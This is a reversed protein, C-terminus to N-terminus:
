RERAALTRRAIWAAAALLIAARAALSAPGALRSAACLLALSAAVYVALVECAGRVDFRVSSSRQSIRAVLATYALEAVLYGLAAGAIGFRPILLLGVAANLAIGLGSAWSIAATRESVVLGLNTLAASHHLVLAGVLWPLALLGARYAEPVLWAYLEPAAACLALGLVAFAGAFYRLMRRYLADRRPDQILLMAYPTWAQRFVLLAFSILSAIRATAGYLGVGELGLLVLLLLRDVQANVWAALTGPLLPLGFGLARRLPAASVPWALLRRVLALGLAFSAAAALGQAVFVGRIGSGLGYVFLIALAVSVGTAVLQVANYALIRRQMRLASSPITALAGFLAIGAGLVLYDSEALPGLLARALPAAALAVALLALGGAGAVCALLAVVLRGREAESPAEAWYRALANPLALQVATSLLTVFTAVVDVAGYAEVSFARTLLPLLLLGGMQALGALVGYSVLDKGVEFVHRDDRAERAAPGPAEAV